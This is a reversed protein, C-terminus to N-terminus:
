ERHRVRVHHQQRHVDVPDDLQDRNLIRHGHPDLAVVALLRTLSEKVVEAALTLVAAPAM